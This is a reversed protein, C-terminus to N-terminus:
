RLVYISPSLKGIMQYIGWLCDGLEVRYEDEGLEDLYREPERTMRSARRLQRSTRGQDHEELHERWEGHLEHRAEIRLGARRIADEFVTHNTNAPVVALSSWLREAEAPELLPTAFMQYVLVAAGPRAVRRCEVFTRDLDPVHVLVDRVWVLDFSAAAFPQAEAVARV